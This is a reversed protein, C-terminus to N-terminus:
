NRQSQLQVDVKPLVLPDSNLSEMFASARPSKWVHPSPASTPAITISDVEFNCAVTATSLHGKSPHSAAAESLECTSRNCSIRASNGWMVVLMLRFFDYAATPWLELGYLGNMRRKALWMCLGHLMDVQQCQSARLESAKIGHRYGARRHPM